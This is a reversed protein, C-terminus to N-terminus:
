FVFKVKWMNLMSLLMTIVYNLFYFKGVFIGGHEEHSYGEVYVRDGPKSGAPPELPIVERNGDM